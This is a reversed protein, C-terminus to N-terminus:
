GLQDVWPLQCLLLLLLNLILKLSRESFKTYHMM